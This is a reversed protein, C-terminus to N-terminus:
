NEFTEEEDDYLVDADMSLVGDDDNPHGKSVSKSSIFFFHDMNSHGYYHGLIVDQYKLSLRGYKKYCSVTYQKARPGIHGTLYVKMGLKRARKLVDKLWEMQITGPQGKIKCGNVATNSSYFYLTNLSVVILKGPIVETYYYGGNLFTEHQGKPIFPSWIDHLIAM